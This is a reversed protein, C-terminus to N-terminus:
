QTQVEQNVETAQKKVAKGNFVELGNAKFIFEDTEPFYQYEPNAQFGLTGSIVEKGANDYLAYNFGQNYAVIYGQGTFELTEFTGENLKKGSANYINYLNDETSAVITSDEYGKIAERIPTSIQKGTKDIIFWQGNSLVVYGTYDVPAVTSDPTFIGIFDYQAAVVDKIGSETFEIVGWKGQSNKAIYLNEPLMSYNKVAAYKAVIKLEDVDLVEVEEDYYHEEEMVPEEYYEIDEEGVVGQEAQNAKAEEAKALEEQKKAANKTEVVLIYRNNIVATIENTVGDNFYSLKYSSDDVFEYAHGCYIGDFKCEYEMRLDEGDYLWLKGEDFFPHIIIEEVKQSDIFEKIKLYTGTAAIGFSAIFGLVIIILAMIKSVKDKKSKM